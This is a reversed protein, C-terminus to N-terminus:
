PKGPLKRSLYSGWAGFRTMTEQWYASNLHVDTYPKGDYIEATVDVLDWGEKFHWNFSFHANKNFGGDGPALEGFVIKRQSIPKELEAGAKQVLAANSTRVIFATDRWDAPASRFGVQYYTYGDPSATSEKKCAALFVMLLLFFSVSFAPKM